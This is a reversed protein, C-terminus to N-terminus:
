RCVCQEKQFGDQWILVIPLERAFMNILHQQVLQLAPRKGTQLVALHAKDHSLARPVTTHSAM